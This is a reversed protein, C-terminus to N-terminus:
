NCEEKLWSYVVGDILKGHKKYIKRLCGERTFGVKELLRQSASNHSFPTASIRELGEFHSFAYECFRQVVKTTIGQGWYAKGIWYGIEGEHSEGVKFPDLFGIGGIVKGKLRIAYHTLKAAGHENLHAQNLRVWDEADAATYPYPMSLLGDSVVKDQLLTVYDEKDAIRIETLTLEADNDFTVTVHKDDM